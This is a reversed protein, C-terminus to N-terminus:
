WLWLIQVTDSSATLKIWLQWSPDIALTQGSGSIPFGHTAATPPNTDQGFNVLFLSGDGTGAANLSKMAILMGEPNTPVSSPLTVQHWNTDAASYSQVVKNPRREFHLLSM